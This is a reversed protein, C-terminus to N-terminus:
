WIQPSFRKLPIVGRLQDELKMNVKKGSIGRMPAHYGVNRNGMLRGRAYVSM